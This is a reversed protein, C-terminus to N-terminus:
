KKEEVSTLKDQISREMQLGPTLASIIEKRSQRKNSVMNVRFEYIFGDILNACSIMGENRLWISLMKLKTLNLPRQIETKMEIHEPNLMNNLIQELSDKEQMPILGDFIGM